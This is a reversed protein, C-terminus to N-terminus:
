LARDFYRSAQVALEARNHCDMLEMLESVYTEVTHVALTLEDAMQRNSRGEALLPLLKAYRPALGSFLARNIAM